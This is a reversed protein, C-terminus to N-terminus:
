LGVSKNPMQQSAKKRDVKPTDIGRMGFLGAPCDVDILAALQSCSVFWSSPFQGRVVANSVAQANVGVTQAIKKRGVQDAFEHTNM